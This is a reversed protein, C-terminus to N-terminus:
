SELKERCRKVFREYVPVIARAKANLVRADEVLAPTRPRGTARFNDSVVSIRTGDGVPVTRKALEWAFDNAVEYLTRREIELSDDLFHRDVLDWSEAFDILPQVSARPFSNGFDMDRLVRITPDAPFTAKFQEFLAVDHPSPKALKSRISSRMLLYAGIATAFAAGSDFPEDGTRVDYGVWFATIAISGILAPVVLKQDWRKKM